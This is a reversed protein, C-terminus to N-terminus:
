NVMVEYGLQNKIENEIYQTKEPNSIKVVIKKIYLYNDSIYSDIDVSIVDVSNELCVNNISTTIIEKYTDQNFSDMSLSETEFFEGDFKISSLPILTYFLVFISLFVNISKKLYSNSLFIQFIGTIATAGCVSLLFQKFDDM